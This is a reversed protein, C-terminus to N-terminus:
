KYWLAISEHERAGQERLPMGSFFSLLRQMTGKRIGVANLSTTSERGRLCSAACKMYTHNLISLM